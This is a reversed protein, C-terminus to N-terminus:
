SMSERSAELAPVRGDRCARALEAVEGSAVSSAALRNKPPAPLAPTTPGILLPPSLKGLTSFTSSLSVGVGVNSEVPAVVEDAGLLAPRALRTLM